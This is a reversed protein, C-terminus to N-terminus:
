FRDAKTLDKEMADAKSFVIRIVTKLNDPSLDAPVSAVFLVRYGDEWKVLEWAGFAGKDTDMLLKNAAKQDPPDESKMATAWIKRTEFANTKQTKSAIFVQQSRGDGLEFFLKLVGQEIEEYKYGAAKLAKALRADALSKPDAASKDAAQAYVSRVGTAGLLLFVSLFLLSVSRMRFRNMLAHEEKSAAREVLPKIRGSEVAM